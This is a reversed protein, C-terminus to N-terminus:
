KVVAFLASANVGNHDTVHLVYTGSPIKGIRFHVMDHEQVASASFVIKGAANVLRAIAPQSTKQVPVSIIVAGHDMRIKLGAPMSNSLRQSIVNNRSQLLTSTWTIGDSSSAAFGNTGVFVYKNNGYAM